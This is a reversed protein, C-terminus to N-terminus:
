ITPFNYLSTIVFFILLVTNVRVSLVNFHRTHHLYSVILTAINQQKVTDLVWLWCFLNEVFCALLCASRYIIFVIILRDKESNEHLCVFYGALLM